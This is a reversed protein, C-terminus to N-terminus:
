IGRTGESPFQNGTLILIVVWGMGLFVDKTNGFGSTRHSLFWM